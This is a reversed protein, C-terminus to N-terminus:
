LLFLSSPTGLVSLHFDRDAVGASNKAICTYRGADAVEVGVIDLRQGEDSVVLGADHNASVPRGNVLWQVGPRPVGRSIHCSLALSTDVIAEVSSATSATVNIEPPEACVVCM